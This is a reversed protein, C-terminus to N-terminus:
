VLEPRKSILKDVIDKIGKDFEAKDDQLLKYFKYLFNEYTQIRKYLNRNKLNRDDQGNSLVVSGYFNIKGLLHRLFYDVSPYDNSAFKNPRSCRNDRFLKKEIQSAIGDKKCNYLTARLNRVYRRNVNLGDNVIVGTVVQRDGPTLIKTKDKNVIFGEFEIVSSTEKILDDINEQSVDNTSFTIDDAYRTFHCRHDRAVQVLRKDLRRCMMNAVYPSLSGGQPLIGSKDDLCALQAMTTAAKEGFEFPY